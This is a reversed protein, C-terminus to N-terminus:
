KKKLSHLAGHSQNENFWDKMLDKNDEINNKLM